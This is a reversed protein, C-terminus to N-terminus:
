MKETLDDGKANDKKFIQNPTIYLTYDVPDGEELGGEKSIGIKLLDAFNVEVGIEGDDKHMILWDRTQRFFHVVILPLLWWQETTTLIGYNTLEKWAGMSIDKITERDDFFQIPLADCKEDELVKAIDLPVEDQYPLSANEYKFESRCRIVPTLNGFKDADSTATYQVALEMIDGIVVSSEGDKMADSKSIKTFSAHIFEIVMRPIAEWCKLKNLEPYNENLYNETNQSIERIEARNDSIDLLPYKREREVHAQKIQEELSTM